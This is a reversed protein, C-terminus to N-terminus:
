RTEDKKEEILGMGEALAEYPCTKWKNFFQKMRKKNPRLTHLTAGWDTKLEIHDHAKEYDDWYQKQKEQFVAEKKLAEESFPTTVINKPINSELDKAYQLTKKYDNLYDKVMNNIENSKSYKRNKNYTMPIYFIRNWSDPTYDKCYHWEKDRLHCVAKQCTLCCKKSTKFPTNYHTLHILKEHYPNTGWKANWKEFDAKRQKEEDTMEQGFTSKYPYHDPYKAQWKKKAKEAKEEFEFYKIVLDKIIPKVEKLTYKKFLTDM